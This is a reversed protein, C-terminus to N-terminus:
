NTTTSFGDMRWFAEARGLGQQGQPQSVQDQRFIQCRGPELLPCHNWTETTRRNWKMISLVKKLTTDGLLYWNGSHKLLASNGCQLFGKLIPVRAHGHGHALVPGGLGHGLLVCEINSHFGERGEELRNLLRWCPRRLVDVSQRPSQSDPRCHSLSSALGEVRTRFGFVLDLPAPALDTYM